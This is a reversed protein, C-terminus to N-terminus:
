PPIEAVFDEDRNIRPYFYCKMNKIEHRASQFLESQFLEKESNSFSIVM